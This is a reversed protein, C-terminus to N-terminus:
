SNLCRCSSTESNLWSGALVIDGALLPELLNGGQGCSAGANYPGAYHLQEPQLWITMPSAPLHIGHEALQQISVKIHQIDPYQRQLQQIHKSHENHCRCAPNQVHILTNDATEVSLGSLQALTLPTQQWQRDPDFEGFLAQQDLWLLWGSGLLWSVILVSALIVKM